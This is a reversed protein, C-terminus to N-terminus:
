VALPPPDPLSAASLEASPAARHAALWSAAEAGLLGPSYRFGQAYACGMDRLIREQSATEIGEAVTAAGISKAVALVARVVAQSRPDREIHEVFSRDIKVAAVPFRHLYRLSSYGSGFDDLAIGVGLGALARLSSAAAETDDLLVSETVEVMLRAPALGSRELASEVVARFRPNAAERASVNVALVGADRELTGQFERCATDLGWGDVMGMLGAEEAAPVFTGAMLMGRRPHRWRLLAEVARPTGTRLSIVPQYAM